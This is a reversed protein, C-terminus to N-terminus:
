HETVLLRNGHLRLDTLRRPHSTADGKVQASRVPGPELLEDRVAVRRALDHPSRPGERLFGNDELSFSFTNAFVAFSVGGFPVCQLTRVIAFATPM